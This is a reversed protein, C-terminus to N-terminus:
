PGAEAVPSEPRVQLLVTPQIAVQGTFPRDHAAILVICVAVATSFLGM